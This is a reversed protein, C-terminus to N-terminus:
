RMLPLGLDRKIAVHMFYEDAIQRMNAPDLNEWNISSATQRKFSVSLVKRSQSNGKPDILESFINYTVKTVDPANDFVNPMLETINYHWSKVLSESSWSDDPTHNVFLVHTYDMYKAKVEGDNLTLQAIEVPDDSNEIDSQTLWNKIAGTIILGLFAYLLIKKM